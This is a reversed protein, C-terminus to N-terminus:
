KLRRYLVHRYKINNEEKIESIYEKSWLNEDFLPFYVDANEDEEDIKTLYLKNSYELFSKYISAGGIIFIEDKYDKYKELFSEINNFVEVEENLNNSSTIVIHHRNPLMKPLSEFTKKGMVIVHNTTLEKFFKLDGKLKWILDNNKGLENNKGIAAIISINM